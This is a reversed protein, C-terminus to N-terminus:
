NRWTINPPLIVLIPKKSSTCRIVHFNIGTKLAVKELIESDTFGYATDDITMVTPSPEKNSVHTGIDKLMGKEVFTEMDYTTIIIPHGQTVCKTIARKIGVYNYLNLIARIFKCLAYLLVLGLIFGIIIKIAM